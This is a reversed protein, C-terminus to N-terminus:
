DKYAINFVQFILHLFIKSASSALSDSVLFHLIRRLHHPSWPKSIYWALHKSGFSIEISVNHDFHSSNQLGCTSSSWALYLRWLDNLCALEFASSHHLLTCFCSVWHPYGWSVVFMRDLSLNKNPKCSWFNGVLDKNSAAVLKLAGFILCITFHQFTACSVGFM